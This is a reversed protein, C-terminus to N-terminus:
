GLIEAALDLHLGIFRERAILPLWCYVEDEDHEPIPHAGADDMEWGQGESRMLWKAEFRLAWRDTKKVLPERLMGPAWLFPKEPEPWALARWIAHDIRRTRERYAQDLLTKAPRQIDGIGDIAEHDDHHLGAMQLQPSAGIRRLKSAVLVAHESVSHFAVAHGGYRCTNSLAHAISLLDIVHYDPNNPDFPNGNFLEIQSGTFQHTM